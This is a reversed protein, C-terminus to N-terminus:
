DIFRLTLYEVIVRTYERLAGPYLKKDLYLIVHLVKVLESFIEVLQKYL